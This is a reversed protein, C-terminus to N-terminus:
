PRCWRPRHDVRSNSRGRADPTVNVTVKFWNAYQSDVGGDSVQVVVQYTNSGSGDAATAATGGNPTEFSPASAFTLVGDQSIAFDGFDIVDETAWTTPM